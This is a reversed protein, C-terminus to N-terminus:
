ALVWDNRDVSYTRSVVPDSLDVMVGSLATMTFPADLVQTPLSLSTGLVPPDAVVGVRVYNYQGASSAAYIVQAAPSNLSEVSGDNLLRTMLSMRVPAATDGEAYGAVKPDYDTLYIFSEANEVRIAKARSTQSDGSPLGGPLQISLSWEIVGTSSIKILENTDLPTANNFNRYGAVYATGDSLVHIYDHQNTWGTGYSNQWVLAGAASFKAILLSSQRNGTYNKAFGVVYINGSADTGVDTLGIDNYQFRTEVLTSAYYKQWLLTGDTDLRALFGDTSTLSSLTPYTQAATKGVVTVNGSMDVAIGELQAPVSTFGFNFLQSDFTKQWLLVGSANWKSIARCVSLGDRVTLGYISDDSGLAFKINRQTAASPAANYGKQWLLNGASDFKALINFPATVSTNNRVGSVVLNGQSDVEVDEGDVYLNSNLGGISRAWDIDGDTNHKVLLLDSYTDTGPNILASGTPRARGVGYIAGNPAIAMDALLAESQYFQYWLEAGTEAEVFDVSIQYKLTSQDRWEVTVWLRDGEVVDFPGASRSSRSDRTDRRALCQVQGTPNSVGGSQKFVAFSGLSRTTATLGSESYPGVTITYSGASAGVGGSVEYRDCTAFGGGLRFLDTDTDGSIPGVLNVPGIPYGIRGIGYRKIQDTVPM